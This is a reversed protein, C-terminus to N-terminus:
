FSKACKRPLRAAVVAAITQTQAILATLRDHLDSYSEEETSIEEPDDFGDMKDMQEATSAAM